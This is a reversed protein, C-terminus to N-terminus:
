IKIKNVFKNYKDSFRYEDYGDYIFTFINITDKVHLTINPYKRGSSNSTYGLKYVDESYQNFAYILSEVFDQSKMSLRWARGHFNGDGDSVGRLFMKRCDESANDFWETSFTRFDKKGEIGMEELTKFICSNPILLEYRLCGTSKRLYTANPRILEFHNRLNELVQQSGENGVMVSIRKNKYDLYGDTAVLGAYYCFIPNDSRIKQPNFLWDSEPNKNLKYKRLWYDVAGVGVNAIKAIAEQSMNKKIYHEYLFEKTLEM